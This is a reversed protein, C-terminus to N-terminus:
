SNQNLIKIALLERLTVLFSKKIDHENSKAIRLFDALMELNKKNPILYQKLCEDKRKFIFYLCSLGIDKLQPKEGDFDGALFSRLMAM